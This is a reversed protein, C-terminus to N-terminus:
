EVLSGRLPRPIPRVGHADIGVVVMKNTANTLQDAGQFVLDLLELLLGGVPRGIVLEIAGDGSRGFAEAGCGSSEQQGDHGKALWV